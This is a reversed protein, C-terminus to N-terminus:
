SRPRPHDGTEGEGDLDTPDIDMDLADWMVRGSDPSTEMEEKLKSQRVAATEYKTSAVSDTGPQLALLVAGFFALAAGAVALAPGAWAADALTVQAWSSITVADVLKDNEAQLLHKARAPDAGVTLLQLPSWAAGAAALASLGGIVRRAGRRLVLGALVGAGVILACAALELSWMSGKLIVETTGSKDDEVTATVWALRSSFWLLIAGVAMLLPGFKRGM